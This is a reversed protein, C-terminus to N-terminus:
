KPPEHVIIDKIAGGAQVVVLCVLAVAFIVALVWNVRYEGGLIFSPDNFARGPFIAITPLCCWGYDEDNDKDEDQGLMGNVVYLAGIVDQVGEELDSEHNKSFARLTRIEKKSLTVVIMIFPRIGTLNNNSDDIVKKLKGLIVKTQADIKLSELAAGVLPAANKAVIVLCFILHIPYM